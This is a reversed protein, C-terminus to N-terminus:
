YYTEHFQLEFYLIGNRAYAMIKDERALWGIACALEIPNLGTLMVLDEMSATTHDHLTRWVIGANKGITIKNM